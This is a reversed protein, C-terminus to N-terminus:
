PKFVVFNIRLTGNFAASAHINRITVILETSAPNVKAVAPLGATNTGEDVSVMVIDNPGVVSNTLTLVYNSGAATTLDETTIVGAMKNLTAAGGAATATGSDLNISGGAGLTLAGAMFLDHVQQAAEGIDITNNTIPRLHGNSHIEWRDTQV